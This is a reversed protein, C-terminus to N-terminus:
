AEADAHQDLPVRGLLLILNPVNVGLSGLFQPRVQAIQRRYVEFLKFSPDGGLHILEIELGRLRQEPSPASKLLLFFVPTVM